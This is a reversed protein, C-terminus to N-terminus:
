CYDCPELVYRFALFPQHFFFESVTNLISLSFPLKRKPNTRLAGRVGRVFRTSLEAANPGVVFYLGMFIILLGLINYILCMFRSKVLNVFQSRCLVFGHLLVSQM